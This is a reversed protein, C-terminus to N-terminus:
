MNSKLEYYEELWEMILELKCDNCCTDSALLDSIDSILEQLETADLFGCEFRKM